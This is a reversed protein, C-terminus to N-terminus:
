EERLTQAPNRKSAKLTQLGVTTFLLAIISVFALVYSGPAINVHYAFGELWVTLVYVSLPVAIMGGVLLVIIYERSMLGILDRLQAGLAQRVALEKTRTKLAYAVLGVLGIFAILIALGSFMFLMQLQVREGKYLNDYLDDLFYYEMPYFPFLDNWVTHITEVSAPVDNTGVKILFTRLWIPEQVMVVPDVKNKLSEQHFDKVVGAINGPALKMDGISWSIKQGVAEAPSQWGLQRMATENILYERSQELLYAQINFDGNLTEAPVLPKVNGGAVFTLDLLSVFDNDIIQIDMMPAKAPDSNVGEVLVPGADRIERSPVEMCASVGAIGKENVLRAKFTEFRAKVQDPVGPIAIIQEPRMGLNKNHLYQFQQYAILASGLLLISISFQLTVMIRKLSFQKESRAYSLAKTTKLMAVPKLATLLVVPYIGTVLGLLVALAIMVLTFILLPPLFEITIIGQLFPFVAYTVGAGITLAVLNYLVSETLLHYILQRRSAGMIKRMGVERARGLAMASNLNMFNIAAIVLIFLGAFGVVKVYLRKGNPVLERALNSDLHIAPLPQFVIADSKAEEESSYKRIFSPMQSAIQGIDTGPELLLYTYAWGTRDTADRFSLLLDVPLHTNASLDKMVGTVHHLTEASDLDGIVSIEAGMPDRDGFYKRALAQTIVISHPKALATKVDGAVLEFNFVNFVDNDAVYAHTPKFKENGIRVYKRAHNQFRVLTKIGPVDQPLNNIYDFPVRAWHSQYGDQPTYQYTARYIRDRNEHFNEFNTEFYVYAAAFFFVAFGTALGLLNLITYSRNKYFHRGVIKLNNGFIVPSKSARM